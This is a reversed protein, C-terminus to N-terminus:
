RHAQASRSITVAISLVAMYGFLAVAALVLVRPPDAISWILGATVAIWVAALFKTLRPLVPTRVPHVILIPVFHLAAFFGIIAANSAPSLRLIVLYFVVLNWFAPFGRFHLDDTLGKLNGFHYAAVLVMVAPAVIRLPPPVLEAEYVYFAPLFVFNCYDAVWDVMRGDFSPVARKIGVARAMTGDVSDIVLAVCLWLLADRWHHACIAILALLACVTGLATFAHIAIGAARQARSVNDTAVGPKGSGSM